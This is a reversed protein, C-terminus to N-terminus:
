FAGISNGDRRNALRQFVGSNANRGDVGSVFEINESIFHVSGDAMVFQMGGAHSSAYTRRFSDDSSCNAEVPNLPCSTALNMVSTLGTWGYGTGELISPSAYILAGNKRPTYGDRYAWVREGLAITNSTGDSIDGTNLSLGIGFVGDFSTPRKKQTKKFLARPTTNGEDQEEFYGRSTSTDEFNAVYNSSAHSDGNIENASNLKPMEDSPCLFVPLSTQLASLPSSSVPLVTMELQEYLPQQDLFPLIRAGWAWVGSANQLANYNTTSNNLWANNPTVGPPFASNADHYNHLALGLQKLNNKCQSRRAAERAQQVAPLLLAILIAIIAIVVLLEILTFGRRTGLQDTM